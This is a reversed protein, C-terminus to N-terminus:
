TACIYNHRLTLQVNNLFDQTVLIQWVVTLVVGVYINILVIRTVCSRVHPARQCSCVCSSHRSFLLAYLLLRNMQTGKSFGVKEYMESIFQLFYFLHM